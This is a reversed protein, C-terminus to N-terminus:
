NTFIDLWGCIISPFKEKIKMVSAGHVFQLVSIIPFQSLYNFHAKRCSKPLISVISLFNILTSSDINSWNNEM